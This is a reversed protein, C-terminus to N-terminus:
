SLQNDSPGLSQHPANCDYRCSMYLYRMRREIEKRRLWQGISGLMCKPHDLSICKKQSLPLIFIALSAGLYM